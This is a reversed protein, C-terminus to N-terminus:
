HLLKWKARKGTGAAVFRLFRHAIKQKWAFPNERRKNIIILKQETGISVCDYAM